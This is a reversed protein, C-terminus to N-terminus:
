NCLVPVIGKKDASKMLIFADGNKMTNKQLQFFVNINSGFLHIGNSELKKREEVMARLIRMLTFSLFANRLGGVERVSLM